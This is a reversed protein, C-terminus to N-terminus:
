LTHSKSLCSLSLRLPKARAPYFHRGAVLKLMNVPWVKIDVRKNGVILLQIFSSGHLTQVNAKGRWEPWWGLTDFDARSLKGSPLDFPVDPRGNSFALSNIM